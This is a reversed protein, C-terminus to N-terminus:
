APRLHSRFCSARAPGPLSPTRSIEGPNLTRARPFHQARSLPYGPALTPNRLTLPPPLAAVARRLSCRTSPHTSPPTGPYRFEDSDSDSLVSTRASDRASNRAPATSCERNLGWSGIGINPMPIGNKQARLSPRPPPRRRTGLGRKRVAPIACRKPQNPNIKLLRTRRRRAHQHVQPHKASASAQAQM